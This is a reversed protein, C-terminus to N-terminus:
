IEPPYLNQWAVKVPFVGPLVLLTGDKQSEWTPCGWPHRQSPQSPHIKIQQFKPIKSTKLNTPQIQKSHIINKKGVGDMPSTYTGVYITSKKPYIYSSIGYAM